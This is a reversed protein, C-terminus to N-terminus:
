LSFSRCSETVGGLLITALSTNQTIISTLEVVKSPIICNHALQLVQINSLNNCAKAIKILGNQLMNDLLLLTQLSTNRSIALSLYNCMKESLMSNGIRLSTLNSITSISQICNRSLNINELSLRKLSKNNAITSTINMDAKESLNCTDFVLIKLFSLDKLAETVRLPAKLLNLSLLQLNTNKSLLSALSNGAEETIVNGYLNIIRLKTTSFLEKLIITVSSQSNYHSKALYNNSAALKVCPRELLNNNGLDLTHIDTIFQLAESIKIVSNQINNHRVHLEKLGTNNKIVSALVEGGAEGIQNNNINLFKLSSITSLSQLIDLASSHLNNNNLWLKELYKNSEIAKALDVAAARSINNNGFDLSRLSTIKQLAKAVESTGEGLNNDSLHLEKLGTNHLIVSALAKGAEETIQNNNINLKKLTSITSLSQLIIDTSTNLNSIFLGVEELHKSATITSALENSVEKSINNNGLSLIRLSKVHQLAKMVNLLGEGLNNGSLYLEELGANHSIVSVLAEGAEKNIQNDNINLLKLTSITSLSQLIDIASSQLNSNSLWLKELNKNSNLELALQTFSEKPIGNNELVLIRLSSICQLAKAVELTGEGLNNNSLHLEELGTNQSIASALTKSSDVPIENNNLNLKQLSSIVCLSKIIEEVSLDNGQINFVRLSKNLKIINSIAAAASQPINNNALILVELKRSHKLAKVIKM